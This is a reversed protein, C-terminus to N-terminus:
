FYVKTYFTHLLMNNVFSYKNHKKLNKRKKGSQRFKVPWKQLKKGRFFM